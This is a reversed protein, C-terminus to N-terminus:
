MFALRTSTEVLYYHTSNCDPCYVAREESNDNPNEVHDTGEYGCCMCESLRGHMDEILEWESSTM